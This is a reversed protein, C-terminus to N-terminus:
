TVIGDPIHAKRFNLCFEAWTVETTTTRTVLFNDWWASAPGMLQHAAFSVKEQDTCQLLNLKKEIAHLGDSAETPNTTSSVTPPRVRLFDPLKSQVPPPGHQQQNNQNQNLLQQLVQQHQQQQQQMQQM